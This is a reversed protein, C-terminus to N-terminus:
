SRWLRVAEPDPGLLHPWLLRLLRSACTLPPLEAAFQVLGFM